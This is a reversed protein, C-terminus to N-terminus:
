FPGGKTHDYNWLMSTRDVNEDWPSFVIDLPLRSEVHGDCFLVNAAGGHVWGAGADPPSSNAPVVQHDFLGDAASDTIAIMESPMRVESARREPAVPGIMDSPISGTVDGLGTPPYGWKGTGWANYAYSFYMDWLLLREGAEYGYRAHDDTARLVRGPADDTWQCRPDQSPCYFVARQDGLLPRLRVPWVAVADGSAPYLYDGPYYGYLQTYLTMAQGISRLNAACHVRNVQRRAAALAPMLLAVLVAIIGVVVLLEVLTFAGRKRGGAAPLMVPTFGRRRSPVPTPM